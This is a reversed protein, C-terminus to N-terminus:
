RRRPLVSGLALYICVQYLEEDSYTVGTTAHVAHVAATLKAWTVDEFDAPISPAGIVHNVVDPNHLYLMLFQPVRFPVARRPPLCSLCATLPDRM